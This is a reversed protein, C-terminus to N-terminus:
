ERALRYHLATILQCLLEGEIRAKQLYGTLGIAGTAAAVGVPGLLLGLLSSTLLYAKFPLTIGLLLSLAKLGTAAALYVGFGTMKLAAITGLTLSGTRLMAVLAQASLRELGLAQRIAEQEGASMKELLRRLHEELRTQEEPSLQQLSEELQRLMRELSKESVQAELQALSPLDTKIGLHRAAALLAQRSVTEPNDRKAGRVGGLDALRNYLRRRLGQDTLDELERRRKGLEEELPHRTSLRLRRLGGFVMEKMGTRLGLTHSVAALDLLEERTLKDLAALFVM